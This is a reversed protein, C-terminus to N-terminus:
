SVVPAKLRERIQEAVYQPRAFALCAYKLSHPAENILDVYAQRKGRRAVQRVMLDHAQAPNLRCFLKRAERYLLANPVHPVHGFADQLAACYEAQRMSDFIAGPDTNNKNSQAKRIEEIGGERNLVHVGIAERARELVSSVKGPTTVIVVRDFVRRYESLQKDLRGTGDFESKVEYATSTGNVVVTDARSDGSRFENLLAAEQLSHRALYFHTAVANKYVYECRYQTALVSYFFDFWDALPAQQDPPGHASFLDGLELVTGRHDARAVRGLFQQSFVQAIGRGDM